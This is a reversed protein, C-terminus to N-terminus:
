HIIEALTGLAVYALVGLSGLLGFVGLWGLWAPGAFESEDATILICIVSVIFVFTAWFTM